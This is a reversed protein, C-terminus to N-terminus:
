ASDRLHAFVRAFADSALDKKKEFNRPGSATALSDCTRAIDCSLL